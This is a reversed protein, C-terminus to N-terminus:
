RFGAPYINMDVTLRSAPRVKEHETCGIGILSDRLATLNTIAPVPAVKNSLLAVIAIRDGPPIRFAPQQADDVVRLAKSQRSPNAVGNEDFDSAGATIAIELAGLDMEMLEACTNNISSTYTVSRAEAELAPSLLMQMSTADDVIVVDAGCASLAVVAASLFRTM